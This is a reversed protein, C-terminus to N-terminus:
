PSYEFGAFANALSPVLMAVNGFVVVAVDVICGGNRLGCVLLRMTRDAVEGTALRRDFM